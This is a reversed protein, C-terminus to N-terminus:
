SSSNEQNKSWKQNEKAIGLDTELIKQLENQIKGDGAYQIAALYPVKEENLIIEIDIEAELVKAKDLIYTECYTKIYKEHETSSMKEGALIYFDVDKWDADPFQMYKELKVETLPYFISITIVIGCIERVLKKRKTDMLTQSIIGCILACILISLLYQEWEM